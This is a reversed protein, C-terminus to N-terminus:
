KSEDTPLFNRALGLRGLSFFLTNGCTVCALPLFTAAPGALQLPVGPSQVVWAVYGDALTWETKHCVPCTLPVGGLVANLRENIFAVQEETLAM